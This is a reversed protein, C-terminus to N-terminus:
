RVGGALDNRRHEIRRLLGAADHIFAVDDLRTIQAPASVLQESRAAIEARLIASMRELRKSLPGYELEEEFDRVRGEGILGNLEALFM